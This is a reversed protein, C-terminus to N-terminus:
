DPKRWPSDAARPRQKEENATGSDNFIFDRCERWWDRLIFISLPLCVLTGFAMVILLVLQTTPFGKEIVGEGPAAPNYFVRVPDNPRFRAVDAVADAPDYHKNGPGLDTLESTYERGDVSYTYSVRGFYLDGKEGPTIRIVPSIVTGNTEHWNTSEYRKLNAPGERILFYPGMGGLLVVLVRIVFRANEYIEM